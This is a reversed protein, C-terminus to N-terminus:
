NSHFKCRLALFTTDHKCVRIMILGPVKGAIYFVITALRTIPDIHTVRPVLIAVTGAM